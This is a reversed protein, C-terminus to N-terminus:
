NIIQTVSYVYRNVGFTTDCIVVDNYKHYSDIMKSTSFFLNKIELSEPDQNFNCIYELGSNKM